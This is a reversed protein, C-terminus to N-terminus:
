PEVNLTQVKPNTPGLFQAFYGEHTYKPGLALPVLRFPMFKFKFAKFGLGKDELGKVM